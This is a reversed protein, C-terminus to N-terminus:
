RGGGQRHGVTAPRARVPRDPSRGRRSPTARGSDGRDPGDSAAIGSRRRQLPAKPSGDKVAHSEEAGDTSTGVDWGACAGIVAYAAALRHPGTQWCSCSSSGPPSTACARGTVGPILRSPRGKLSSPRSAADGDCPTASMAASDVHEKEQRGIPKAEAASGVAAAGKRVESYKGLRIRRGRLRWNVQSMKGLLLGHPRQNGPIPFHVPLRGLQILDPHDCRRHLGRGEMGIHQDAYRRGQDVAGDLGAQSKDRDASFVATRLFGSGEGPIDVGVHKAVRAGRGHDEAM